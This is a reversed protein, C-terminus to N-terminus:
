TYVVYGYSIDFKIKVLNAQELQSSLKMLWKSTTLALFVSICTCPHSHCSANSCLVLCVTGYVLLDVCITLM